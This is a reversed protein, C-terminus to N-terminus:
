RTLAHALAMLFNVGQCLRMVHAIESVEDTSQMVSSKHSSSRAIAAKLQDIGTGPFIPM